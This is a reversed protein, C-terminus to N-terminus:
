KVSKLLKYANHSTVVELLGQQQMVFLYHCLSEFKSKEYDWNDRVKEDEVISHLMLICVKKHKITYSILSKLQAVSISSLVPVSYVLGDEVSDMLTDQYALRYLIPFPLVRSIKRIFTKIRPNSVYRLSLRVYEIGHGVLEQNHEHYYGINM